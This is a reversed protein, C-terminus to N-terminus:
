SWRLINSFFSSFCVESIINSDDRWPIINTKSRRAGTCTGRKFGPKLQDLFNSIRLKQADSLHFFPVTFEGALKHLAPDTINLGIRKARQISIDGTGSFSNLSSATYQSCGYKLLISSLIGTFSFFPICLLMLFM